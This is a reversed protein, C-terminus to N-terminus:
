SQTCGNVRRRNVQVGTCRYVQLSTLRYVQIRGTAKYCHSHTNLTSISLAELVLRLPACTQDVVRELRPEDFHVRRRRERRDGGVVAHEFVLEDAVHEVDRERGVAERLAGRREEHRKEGSVSVSVWM